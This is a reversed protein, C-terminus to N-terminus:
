GSLIGSFYRTARIKNTLRVSKKVSSINDNDIIYPYKLTPFLSNKFETITKPFIKQIIAYDDTVNKM